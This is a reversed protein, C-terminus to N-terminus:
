RIPFVDDAFSFYRWITGWLYVNEKLYKAHVLVKYSHTAIKWIKSIVLYGFIFLAYWTKPTGPNCYNLQAYPFVQADVLVQLAIPRESRRLWTGLTYQSSPVFDRLDISRLHQSGTTHCTKVLRKRGQYHVFIHSLILGQKRVHQLTEM